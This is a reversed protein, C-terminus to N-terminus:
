PCHFVGSTVNTVAVEKKEEDTEMEMEKFWAVLNKTCMLSVLFAESCPEPSTNSLLNKVEAVKACEQV